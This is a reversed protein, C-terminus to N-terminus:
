VEGQGPLTSSLGFHAYSKSFAFSSLQGALAGSPDSSRGVHPMATIATTATRKTVTSVQAITMNTRSLLPLGMKEVSSSLVTEALFASTAIAHDHRHCSRWGQLGSRQLPQRPHFSIGCPVAEAPGMMFHNRSIHSGRILSIGCPVAEAPGMIFHNRSIPSRASPPLYWMPRGGTPGTIVHNRYTWLWDTM